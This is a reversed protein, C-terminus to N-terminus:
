TMRLLFLRADHLTDFYDMDGTVSVARFKQRNGIALKVKSIFGLERGFYRLSIVGNRHNEIFISASMADGSPSASPMFARLSPSPPSHM